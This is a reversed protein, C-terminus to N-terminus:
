AGMNPIDRQHQRRCVSDTEGTRSDAVTIEEDPLVLNSLSELTYRKGSM